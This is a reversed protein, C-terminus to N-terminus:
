SLTRLMRALMQQHLRREVEAHKKGGVLNTTEQPDEELDFLLYPVGHTNVAMKWKPTAVMAEGWFESMAVGRHTASPKELVPVLSAGRGFEETVGALDLLTPGIDTLEAVTGAVGGSTAGRLGRPVQVIMPVRVAPGLMVSKYILGFDGNMEGHDSILVVITRDAEGREAVVRLVAGIQDDILTVHGAYDARMRAIDDKTLNRPRRQLRKDLAGKPTRGPLISRRKSFEVPPPMDEPRYRSAYPEPTDWPEHPGGFSLWCMWPQEGDYSSLHDVAQQAIWVDPYLDFPLPSPRVLWPQNTYRDKLDQKYLSYVGNKEWLDTLNSRCATAARPGAIEQVVDLGYSHMLHERDRLDGVHPHLHTKGFVATSYGADRLARMWTESDPPMTYRKNGWVGYNHPYASLALGVRAPICEPSQTYANAFRVGTAALRDIHPTEVWSSVCGMADWRQQDTMLLLINPRQEASVDTAPSM